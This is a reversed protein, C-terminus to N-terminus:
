LGPEVCLPARLAPRQGNFTAPFLTQLAGDACQVLGRARVQESSLAESLDLVPSLCCDADAFQAAIEALNRGAFFATIEAILGTQPLSDNQREVWDPREAAACFNQWFRPEVPGLMVHRGDATRYLNYYAAAGNLYTSGRKPVTGNAGWEAVQMSQLPMLTDALGLEIHAGEGTRQRANLAGLIAIAAYLAGAMDAIPPDFFVPADRGNRDLIGSEALYNGDHGAANALPGDTGYGSISCYILAPNRAALAAYGFGLRAMVGPRFGEILVDADVLLGEMASRGDASKLDLRRLSKGANLSAYFVPEGDADRPGLDRMGDGAPPEIKIVEAGMDALIQSTVPGSIYQSLDLVKVGSLFSGVDGLASM